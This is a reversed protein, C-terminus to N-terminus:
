LPPHPWPSPPPLGSDPGPARPCRSALLCFLAALTLGLARVVAQRVVVLGGDAGVGPLAEWETWSAGFSDSNLTAVPGAPTAGEVDDGAPGGAGLWYAVTQFRGSNDRGQAAADGVAQEM